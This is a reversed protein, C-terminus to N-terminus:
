FATASYFYQERRPGMGAKQMLKSPTGNEFVVLAAACISARSRIATEFDISTIKMISCLM